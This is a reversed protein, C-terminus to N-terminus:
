QELDENKQGSFEGITKTASLMNNKFISNIKIDMNEEMM